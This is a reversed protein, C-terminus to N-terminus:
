SGEETAATRPGQGVFEPSLVETLGSIEFLRRLKEPLLLRMTAGEEALRKHASVLLSLGVSDMFGVGSLDVTVSGAGANRANMIEDRLAGATALDLDGEFRVSRSGGGNAARSERKQDPETRPEKMEEWESWSRPALGEDIQRVFEGLVWRRFSVLDPPTALSLLDDGARCFADVRDMMQELRVAAEALAPPAEFVLTVEEDGREAAAYLDERTPDVVGGFREDFEAILETLQHPPSNKPLDAMIIEFERKIAEQHASARKWVAVPVQPLRVQVMEESM